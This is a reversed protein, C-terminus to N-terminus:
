PSAPKEALEPFIRELFENRLVRGPDLRNKLALFKELGGKYMERLVEPEACVTKGLHVRGGAELCMRALQRLAHELAPLRGPRVTEFAVTVAFGSQGRSASLWADDESVFLVDFLQPDLDRSAILEVAGDLFKDLTDQSSPIVYTQQLTFTTIGLRREAARTQVNGDMFFTYGFLDDIYDVKEQFMLYTGWWFLPGTIYGRAMWEALPRLPHDLQHQPMPRLEDTRVYTSEFILGRPRGGRCIVGYFATANEHSETELSASVKQQFTRALEKVSRSRLRAGPPPSRRRPKWLGGPEIFADLDLCKKVRTRVRLPARPPGDARVRLVSYTLSTIVGLYGLGGIVGLFLERKEDSRDLVLEEGDVTLLTLEVIFRSEKGLSSSFRSVCDASATGGATALSTSVVVHPVLGRAELLRAIDGWRAGPGVTVTPAGPEDSLAIDDLADLLIVVDGNLSQADLSCGGARFTVRRGQRAMDALIMKLAAVSDPRHVECTRREIEGYSRLEAREGRRARAQSVLGRIGSALAALAVVNGPREEGGRPSRQASM